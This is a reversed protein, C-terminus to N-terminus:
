VIPTHKKKTFKVELFAYFVGTKVSFCLGANRRVRKIVPNAGGSFDGM